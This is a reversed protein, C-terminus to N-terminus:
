FPRNTAPQSLVEQYYAEYIPVIISDRFRHEAARRAAAAASAHLRADTLLRVISGSMGELDDVDHLFGTVGEEVLESLGGVCTAVVPLECAMAELAALGFSEQASPL